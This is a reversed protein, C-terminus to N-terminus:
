HIVTKIRITKNMYILLLININYVKSRILSSIPAERKRRNRNRHTTYADWASWNIYFWLSWEIEEKM